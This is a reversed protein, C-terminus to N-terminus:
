EKKKIKWVGTEERRKRGRARKSPGMWPATVSFGGHGEQLACARDLDFASTSLFPAASSSTAASPVVVVAVVILLLALLLLLLLADAAAAYVLRLPLLLLLLSASTAALLASSSSSAVPASTLISLHRKGEIKKALM